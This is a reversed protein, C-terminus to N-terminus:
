VTGTPPPAGFRTVGIVSDGVRYRTVREGVASVVGSLEFGPVIPWGLDKASKYLGMRVVLDAFNVGAARVEVCVEDSQPTPDPATEVVLARASGPRRVIVKRM